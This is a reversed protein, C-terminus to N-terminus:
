QRIAGFLLALDSLVSHKAVQSNPSYSTLLAGTGIDFSLAYFESM